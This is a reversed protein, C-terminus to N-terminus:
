QKTTLDLLNSWEEACEALVQAAVQYSLKPIDPHKRMLRGRRNFEAHIGLRNAKHKDNYDKIHRFLPYNKAGTFLTRGIKVVIEKNIKREELRQSLRENFMKKFAFANKAGGIYAREPGFGLLIDTNNPMNMGHFTVITRPKLEEIKKHYFEAVHLLEKITNIDVDTVLRRSIEKHVISAKLKMRMGPERALDIDTRLLAPYMYAAKMHWAALKMLKATNTDGVGIHAGDGHQPASIRTSQAHEATILIRNKEYNELVEYKIHSEEVPHFLKNFTEFDKKSKLLTLKM